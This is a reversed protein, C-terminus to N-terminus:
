RHSLEEGNAATLSKCICNRSWNDSKIRALKKIASVDEPGNVSVRVGTGEAYRPAEAIIRRVRAPLASAEKVAKDGLVLAAQFSGLLGHHLDPNRFSFSPTIWLFSEYFAPM